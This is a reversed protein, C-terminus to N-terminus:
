NFPIWGNLEPYCKKRRKSKCYTIKGRQEETYELGSSSIRVIRRTVIETKNYYDEYYTRVNNGNGGGITGGTTGGGGTEGDTGGGGTGGGNEGSTEGNGLALSEM